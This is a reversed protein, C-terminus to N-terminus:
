LRLSICVHIVVGNENGVGAFCAQTLPLAGRSSEDYEAVVEVNIEPTSSREASIIFNGKSPEGRSVFFLLDAAGELKLSATSTKASSEIWEVCHRM